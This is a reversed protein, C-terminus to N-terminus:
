LSPNANAILLESTYRTLRNYNRERHHSESTYIIIYILTDSFVASSAPCQMAKGNKGNCQLVRRILLLKRLLVNHGELMQFPILLTITITKISFYINKKLNQPKKLM